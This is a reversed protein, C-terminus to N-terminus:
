SYPGLQLNVNIKTCPHLKALSASLVPGPLGNLAVSVLGVSWTCSDGPVGLSGGSEDKREALGPRM